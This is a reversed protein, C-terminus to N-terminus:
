GVPSQILGGDNASSVPSGNSGKYMVKNGSSM